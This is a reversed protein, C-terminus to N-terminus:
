QQVVLTTLWAPNHTGLAMWNVFLTMAYKFESMNYSLDDPSLIEYEGSDKYQLVTHTTAGKVIQFKIILDTSSVEYVIDGASQPGHTPYNRSVFALFDILGSVYVLFESHPIRGDLPLASSTWLQTADTYTWSNVTPPIHSAVLKCVKNAADNVLRITQDM